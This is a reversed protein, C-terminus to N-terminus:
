ALESGPADRPVRALYDAMAAGTLSKIMVRATVPQGSANLYPRTRVEEYGCKSWFREAVANGCMVSLRMWRAGQAMAWEELAAHLRRAVGTGRTAGDLLLLAIHWVGEAVLDSVVILVGHLTGQAGFVGAFWRESFTLHPPPLEDYEVQAEDPLPPRGSVTQFYGPNAEFLAQLAPVEDRRLNRVTLGDTTFLTSVLHEWSFTAAQGLFGNAGPRDFHARRSRWGACARM